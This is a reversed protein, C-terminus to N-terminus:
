LRRFSSSREVKQLRWIFGIENLKIYNDYTLKCRSDGNLWFNYQERQTSVWRGLAHDQPYKTPVACDGYKAKYEKLQQFRANWISQGRRKAWVFGISELLNQREVTMSSKTIGEQFLIYEM